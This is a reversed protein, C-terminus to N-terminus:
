FHVVHVHGAKCKKKEFFSFLLQHQLPISPKQLVILHVGRVKDSFGIVTHLQDSVWRRLDADSM